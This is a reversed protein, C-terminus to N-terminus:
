SVRNSTNIAAFYIEYWDQRDINISVASTANKIRQLSNTGVIPLAGLKLLWTIALQEENINYKAAIKKLTNRINFSSEDNQDLLRGGALPAWALINSKQQKIFDITGDTIAQTKLLNLEIHNGVIPISLRSQLLQHQHITFNAVGVYRVLGEKVLDTLALATEEPDILLDPHHLLLIDIYDTKLNSLSKKVSKFIHERSTDYHKIRYQPRAADIINIGCKTSIIIDERKISKQKIVKGFLEEVNYHGYIDAHDFTNIGLDICTNLKKEIFSSSLGEPDEMWRWFSYIIPSILPGETSLSVKEM